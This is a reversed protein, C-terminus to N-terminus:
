FGDEDVLTDTELLPVGEGADIYKEYQRSRVIPAPNGYLDAAVFSEYLEVYGEHEDSETYMEDGYLQDPDDAMAPSNSNGWSEVIRWGNVADPETAGHPRLWQEEAPRLHGNAADPAHELCYETEPIARLRDLPIATGCVSCHGYHGSRIRELARDIEAARAEDRAELAIDKGREFLETGTDGPHNDYSSLDGASDKLSDTLGYRDNQDLRRLLEKKNHALLRALESIMEPSLESM